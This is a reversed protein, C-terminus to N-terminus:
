CNTDSNKNEYAQRVFQGRLRPRQKALKKRSQYRVKKEFCREKRKQCFKKLAAERQAFRNQDVGNGSGFGIGCVVGGKGTVGTESEVNMVRTNLATSRGIQGNSGHNSGSASRNLSNNGAHGEVDRAGPVNSSGCQLAAAAMNELSLDDQKGLKKNQAMNHVHHHHHRHHHHQVQVQQDTGRAQVFTMNGLVPDDKGQALPQPASAHGNQVSRFASSLHFSKVSTNPAQKDSLVAPKSFANNTTSDMDNNNSSGNSQQKPPVSNFNSQFNKIYATKAAVSSNDLPSCSGIYGTPAQNAISGSNYRSFASLDSHRLVNRELSSTGTDGIYRQRNLSLELSPIEKTEYIVKDKADSVKPLGNPIDFFASEIRADTNDTILGILGTAQNRLDGGPKESNLELQTKELKEDNMPIIESLKDKSAGAINTLVKESPNALQLATIKPIGIELDNGMVVNDLEDDQGDCERAATVPIWSNGLEKPRCHIVQTDSGNDSGDGVNLGGSGIDDEDNSGTDNDSDVSKSKTSKQTWIGSESESSSPQLKSDLIPGYLKMCLTPYSYCCVSHCKRWVHQWLNKLENKRIPKVLFDVAGKSLCKFVISMSDHSSMMIVPINKCTKHSMIKSLLGIGSLCPMVLETLVLDIHSTLAELIKWAQLSNSVATVEYGCNQLLACVVYCTPDDNEVLLVKLSRPPLFREWCVLPGRSQQQSRQQVSRMQVQLKVVEANGDDNDEVYDNIRSEDEESLGQGQGTVGDRIQKHEDHMLTNLEVLGNNVPGNNNMQVIGMLWILFCCYYSHCWISHTGKNWSLTQVDWQRVKLFDEFIRDILNEEWIEYLGLM